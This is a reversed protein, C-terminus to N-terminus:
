DRMADPRELMPMWGGDDERDSFASPLGLPLWGKADTDMNDAALRFLASSDENMMKPNRLSPPDSYPEFSISSMPLKEGNRRPSKDRQSHNSKGGVTQGDNFDITKTASENLLAAVEIATKEGLRLNKGGGVVSVVASSPQGESDQGAGGCIHMLQCITMRESQEASM